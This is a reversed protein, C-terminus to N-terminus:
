WISQRQFYVCINLRMTFARIRSWIHMCTCPRLAVCLVMWILQWKDFTPKGGHCLKQTIFVTPFTWFGFEKPRSKNEKGNIVLCSSVSEWCLWFLWLTKTANWDHLYVPHSFLSPSFNFLSPLIFLPPFPSLTHRIPHNERRPKSQQFTPPALTQKPPLYKVLLDPIWLSFLFNQATFIFSNCKATTDYIEAM